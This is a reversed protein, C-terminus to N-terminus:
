CNVSGPFREGLQTYISGFIDGAVATNGQTNLTQTSIAPMNAQRADGDRWIGYGTTMNYMKVNGPAIFSNIFVSNPGISIYANALTLGSETTLNAVTLGM